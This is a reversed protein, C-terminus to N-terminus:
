KNKLELETKEKQWNKEKEIFEEKAKKIDEERSKVDAEM